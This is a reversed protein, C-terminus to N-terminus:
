MPVLRNRTFTVIVRRAWFKQGSGWFFLWFDSFIRLRNWKSVQIHNWSFDFYHVNAIASFFTGNQGSSCRDEGIIGQPHGLFLGLFM